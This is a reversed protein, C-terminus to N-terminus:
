LINEWKDIMEVYEQNKKWNIIDFNLTKRRVFFNLLIIANKIHKPSLNLVLQLILIM